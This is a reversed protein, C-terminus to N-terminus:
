NTHSQFQQLDAALKDSWNLAFSKETIFSRPNMRDIYVKGSLHDVEHQLIRAFWGSATISVPKGHRNLGEVQVEEAREVIARYGEVSLCGEFYAHKTKSLTTLKPNIIVQLKVPKRQQEQLLNKPVKKQYKALDEIIFIQLSEGVQPAALGVGPSDRLTQIMSDILSQVEDSALQMKAVLKAQARLAPDGVQRTKLIM